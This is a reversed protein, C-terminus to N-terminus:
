LRDRELQSQLGVKECTNIRGLISRKEKRAQWPACQAKCHMVIMIIDRESERERNNRTYISLVPKDIATM